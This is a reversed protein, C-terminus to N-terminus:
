GLRFALNVQSQLYVAAQDPPLSLAQTIAQNLVRELTSGRTGGQLAHAPVQLTFTRMTFTRAAPNGQGAPISIHVAVLRNPDNIVM